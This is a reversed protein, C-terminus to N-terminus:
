ERARAIMNKMEKMLEKCHSFFAEIERPPNFILLAAEAKALLRLIDEIAGNAL